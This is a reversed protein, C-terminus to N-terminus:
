QSCCCSLHCHHNSFYFFVSHGSCSVGALLDFMELFHFLLLFFFISLTRLCIYFYIYIFMLCIYPEYFLFSPLNQARYLFLFLHKRRTVLKQTGVLFRVESNRIRMPARFGLTQRTRNWM